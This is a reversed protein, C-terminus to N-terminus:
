PLERPRLPVCRQCSPSIQVLPLTMLWATEVPAFGDKLYTRMVEQDRPEHSKKTSLITSLESRRLVHEGGYSEVSSTRDVIISWAALISLVLIVLYFARAARYPQRQPRIIGTPRMTPSLKTRFAM